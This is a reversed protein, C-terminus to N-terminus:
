QVEVLDGDLLDRQDSVVVLEHERLGSLIEIKDPFQRGIRILRLMAKKEANVVYVLDLQGRRVWASRPIFLTPEEAGGALLLKGYQGPRVSAINPLGVKVTFTRSTPDASPSLEEVTGSIVTDLVPVAIRVQDGIRIRDRYSEAISVVFRAAGSEELTFLPQGPFVMDGLDIQRKTVVGAFPATVHSYSLMAEAERLSAEAVTARSKVVDFEQQTVLQQSLMKEFRQLDTSTQEFVARAQQVRAQLDRSDLEALLEGQRVRSGIDVPLRDVRAQTKTSINATNRAMVSGMIESVADDSQTSVPAAAVRKPTADSSPQRDEDSGCGAALAAVLLTGVTLLSTRRM